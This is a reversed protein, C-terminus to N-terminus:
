CTIGFDQELIVLMATQPQRLCKQLSIDVIVYATCGSKAQAALVPIWSSSMIICSISDEYMACADTRKCALESGPLKSADRAKAVHQVSQIATM